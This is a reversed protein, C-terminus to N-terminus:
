LPKLLSGGKIKIYKKIMKNNDLIEFGYHTLIDKLRSNLIEEFVLDYKCNRCSFEFWEILDKFHGNGPNDNIVSNIILYKNKDDFRYLGRVTGIKYEYVKSEPLLVNAILWPRHLFELNNTSKFTDRFDEENKKM